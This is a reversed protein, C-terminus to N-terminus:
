INNNVKILFEYAGVIDFNRYGYNLRLLDTSLFNDYKDCEINGVSAALEEETISKEKLIESEYSNIRCGLTVVEVM